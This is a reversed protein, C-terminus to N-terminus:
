GAILGNILGKGRDCKGMNSMLKSRGSMDGCLVKQVGDSGGLAPFDESSNLERWVKGRRHSKATYKINCGKSRGSQSRPLSCSDISFNECLCVFRENIWLRHCSHAKTQPALLCVFHPILKFDTGTRSLPVLNTHVKQTTKLRSENVSLQESTRWVLGGARGVTM